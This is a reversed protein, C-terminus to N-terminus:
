CQEETAHTERIMFSFLLSIVFTIPFIMFAFHYDSVDYFPVGNSYQGHWHLDLLWGMVPQFVAGGAMIIVSAMGLASGTLTMSNSETILPYSIVQSSTVFGLLFFLIMMVSFSPAPIYRVALILAISFVAGIIMLPKRKRFYDSLQGLIPSGVITGIFLMSNIVSAQTRSFHNAQSLYQIGWLAGLVLIPLNLFCTYFGGLWNQRNKLIALVTTKLSIHKSQDITEASYGKPYDRVLFIIFLLFIAGLLADYQIAHRWGVSAVLLTMPTQAVVGGLMAMTVVAGTVLALKKAPFWRSALRLSSLLNFAAGFGSLLRMCFAFWYNDTFSLCFTAAVSVFMATSLLKRTSFKDLIFGAPFLLLIDAYFYGASLNSVEAGNIHFARMLDANITDFMNMQLFEYFFFLASVMVVLWALWGGLQHPQTNNAPLPSTTM